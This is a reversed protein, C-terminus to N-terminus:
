VGTIPAFADGPLVVVTKDEFFFMVLGYQPHAGWCGQFTKGKEFWTAKMKLNTIGPLACEDSHLTITVGEAQAIAMPRAVVMSPFCFLIALFLVYRPLAVM